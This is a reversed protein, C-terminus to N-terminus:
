RQSGRSGATGFNLVIGGIHVDGSGWADPEARSFLRERRDACGKREGIAPVSSMANELYRM